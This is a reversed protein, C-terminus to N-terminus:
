ANDSYSRSMQGTLAMQHQRLQQNVLSSVANPDSVGSININAAAFHNTVPPATAGTKFPIVPATPKTPITPATPIDTNVGIKPFSQINPLNIMPIKNITNILVNVSEIIRNVPTLLENVLSVGVQAVSNKFSEWAVSANQVFLFIKATTEGLWRGITMFAEVFIGILVGIAQGLIQGYNTANQLEQNTAQMPTLMEALVGKFTQWAGVLLDWLPQLPTLTTKLRNFATRISDMVPALGLKLGSWFGKFFAKIPQWYRYIALAVVAILGIIWTLPNALMAVMMTRLGAIVLPIAKKDLFIFARSLLQITKSIILIRSPLNFGFKRALRKIIFIAIGLKTLAAITAFISGFLLSM